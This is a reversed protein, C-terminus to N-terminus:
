GNERSIAHVYTDLLGPSHAMVAYVNPAFGLGARAEGLRTRAPPDAQAADLAPPTLKYEAQM